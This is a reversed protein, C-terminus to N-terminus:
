ESQQDQQEVRSEENAINLTLNIFQLDTNGSNYQNEEFNSTLKRGKVMQCWM